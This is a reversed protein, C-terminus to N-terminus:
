NDRMEIFGARAIIFSDMQDYCFDKLRGTRKLPWDYGGCFPEQKNMQEFAQEKQPKWAIGAKKCATKSMMKLGCLKRARSPAYYIPDVGMEKYILYSVIGNFRMLLSITASSSKGRSFKSLPEEIFVYEINYEKKLEQIFDAVRDVKKWLGDKIKSLELHGLKVLKGFNDLITYGTTSTSIDLALIMNRM